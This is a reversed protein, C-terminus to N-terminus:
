QGKLKRKANQIQKYSKGTQRFMERSEALSRSNREQERLLKLYNQWRREELTGDNLAAQIACGPESNHHCDDFRCNIALDTIESFLVDLGQEVDALQLERMGPTDILVGGDPLM